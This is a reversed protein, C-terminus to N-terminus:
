VFSLQKVKIQSFRYTNVKMIKYSFNSNASSLYPLSIKYRLKRKKNMKKKPIPTPPPRQRVFATVPLIEDGAKRM